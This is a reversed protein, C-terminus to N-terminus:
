HTPLKDAQGTWRRRDVFSVLGPWKYMRKRLKKKEPMKLKILCVPPSSALPLCPFLSPPIVCLLPGQSHNSRCCQPWSVYANVIWNSFRWLLDGRERFMIASDNGSWEEWQVSKKRTTEGTKEKMKEKGPWEKRQKLRLVKQDWKGTMMLLTFVQCSIKGWLMSAASVTYATCTHDYITTLPLSYPMMHLSMWMVINMFHWGVNLISDNLTKKHELTGTRGFWRASIDLLSRQLLKNSGQHHRTWGLLLGSTWFYKLQKM